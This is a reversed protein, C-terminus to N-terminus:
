SASEPVGNTVCPGAGNTVALITRWGGGDDGPVESVDDVSQGFRDDVQDFADLPDHEPEGSRLKSIRAGSQAPLSLHFRSAIKVGSFGSRGSSQQRDRWGSPSTLPSRPSRTKSVDRQARPRLTCSTLETPAPSRLPGPRRRSMRAGCRVDASARALAEPPLMPSGRQTFM